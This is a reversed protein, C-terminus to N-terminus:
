NLLIKSFYFYKKKQHISAVGVSIQVDQVDISKEEEKDSINMKAELINFFM